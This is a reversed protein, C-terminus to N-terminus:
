GEICFDDVGCLVYHIELYLNVCKCHLVSLTNADIYNRLTNSKFAETHVAMQPPQGGNQEKCRLWEAGRKMGMAVM